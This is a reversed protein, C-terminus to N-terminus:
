WSQGSRLVSDAAEASLPTSLYFGQAMQSGRRRVLELQEPTEIGEAVASMGLTRSLSVITEILGVSSSDDDIPQYLLSELFLARNPLGTLSDHICQPAAAGARTRETVDHIIGQYWLM